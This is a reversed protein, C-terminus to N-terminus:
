FLFGAWSPFESKAPKRKEIGAKDLSSESKPRKGNEGGLDKEPRKQSEQYSQPNRFGRNRKNLIVCYATKAVGPSSKNQATQGPNEGRLNNERGYNQSVVSDSEM